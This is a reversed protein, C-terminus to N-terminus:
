HKYIKYYVYFIILNEIILAFGYFSNFRISTQKYYTEPSNVPFAESLRRSLKFVKPTYSECSDNYLGFNSNNLVACDQFKIDDDELCVKQFSYLHCEESNEREMKYNWTLAFRQEIKDDSLSQIINDTGVEIRITDGQLLNMEVVEVNNKNDRIENVSNLFDNGQHVHVMNKNSDFHIVRLNLNNILIQDTFPLSPPDDYVLSLKFNEINHDSKLTVVFPKQWNQLSSLEYGFEGNIFNRLSVKGFGYDYHNITRTNNRKAHIHEGHVEWYIESGSLTETFTILTSKKLINPIVHLKTYKQLVDKILSIINAVLPTAMSTGQLLLEKDHVHDDLVESFASKVFAGNAVVDPKIRNGAAPGRSSFSAINNSQYNIFNVLIDSKNFMYKHNVKMNLYDSFAEYSSISAGVTIANKSTGPTSITGIGPGSNGAAVVVTFEPNEYIFKDIQQSYSTYYNIPNGWSCSLIDSGLSKSFKMLWTLSHPLTLSEDSNQSYKSSDIVVLKHLPVFMGTTYKDKCENSYINYNLSGSTHSGHGEYGDLLDTNKSTNKFNMSYYGYIKPHNSNLKTTESIREYNHQNVSDTFIDVGECKFYCHKIDIGTDIITIINNKGYEYKEKTEEVNLANLLTETQIHQHKFMDGIAFMNLTKPKEMCEMGFVGDMELIHESIADRTSISDFSILLLNEDIHDDNITIRHHYKYKLERIISYDFRVYFVCELDYGSIIKHKKKKSRLVRYHDHHHHFENNDNTEIYYEYNRGIGIIRLGKNKKLVKLSNLIYNENKWVSSNFQLLQFGDILKLHLICIVLLVIVVSVVDISM